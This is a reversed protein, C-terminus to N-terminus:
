YCGTRSMSVTYDLGMQDQCTCAFQEDAPECSVAPNTNNPGLSAGVCDDCSDPGDSGGSGGTGASGGSGSNGGTGALCTCDCRSDDGCIGQEVGNSCEVPCFVDQCYASDLCTEVVDEEGCAVAVVGVLLGVLVAYAKM